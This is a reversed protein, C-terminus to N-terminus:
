SDSTGGIAGLRTRTRNMRLTVLAAVFGVAREWVDGPGNPLSYCVVTLLFGLVMALPVAIPRVQWRLFRAVVIPGFAAGLATWAFLVRSFISEPLIVALVVAAVAVGGTALRASRGPSGAVHGPRLDHHLASGAVLLQSDATSMIASLVAAILVGTIAAPLLEEALVFFVQEGEVGTSLMAHGCLGLLFMGGLVVTFWVIAITRAQSIKEAEAMAMIRTLLHPQGLPGFGISVMGIFFGLAFWGAHGGTWDWYAVDDATAALAAFGGVEILAMVPLLIAAVLMLVAQLADTLSVAWFGGWLTYIVVVLAGIILATIFDLGFTATFTNAAGQFQAAVYFTFSFLVIVAALRASMRAVDSPLKHIILDTLTLWNEEHSAKRLWPAIVFWVVIHGTITGPLLWFSGLGQTFAIGSVGLISWASSSGAAYSLSASWPGLGRDGLFYGDTTQARSRAWYGISLLVAQYVILTVVITM